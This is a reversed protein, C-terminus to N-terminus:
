ASRSISRNHPRGGFLLGFVAGCFGGMLHAFQSTNDPRFGGVFERLLYLVLILVFTLPVEGSRFNTLSALVILMFVIGSSGLVGTPFLLGNLVGTALATIGIMLLLLLSGYREEVMPGLLLILMANGVLHPWGMHGLVFLFCRVLGAPSLVGLGPPAVFFNRVLGPMITQNMVLVVASVLIMTLTVPANYRLKM